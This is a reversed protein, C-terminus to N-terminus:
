RDIVNVQPNNSYRPERENENYNKRKVFNKAKNYAVSSKKLIIQKITSLSGLIALRIPRWM